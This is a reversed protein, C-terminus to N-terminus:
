GMGHFCQEVDQWQDGKKCAAAGSGGGADLAVRFDIGLKAGFVFFEDALSFDRSAHSWGGDEEGHTVWCAFGRPFLVAFVELAPVVVCQHGNVAVSEAGVVSISVAAVSAPAAVPAVADM